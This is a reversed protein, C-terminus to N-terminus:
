RNLFYPKCHTMLYKVKSGIHSGITISDLDPFDLGKHFFGHSVYLHVSSAGQEKLKQSLLRFTYGGDALDDVILLKLGRVEANLQIMPEGNKRVKNAAVLDIDSYLNYLKKYAGADPSVIADIEEGSESLRKITARVATEATIVISKEILAPAVDSHPDFIQVEGFGCSNIFDAIIKLDFSSEGSFRRDSRQGFLCPIFIKVSSADGLNHHLIESFSKLFFLDEYSNVEVRLVEQSWYERSTLLDPSSIKCTIQGDPYIVRSTITKIDKMEPKDAM